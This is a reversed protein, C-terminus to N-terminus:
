IYTDRSPKGDRDLGVPPGSMLGVASHSLQSHGSVQARNQGMECEERQKEQSGTEQGQAQDCCEMYVKKIANQRVESEAKRLSRLWRPM